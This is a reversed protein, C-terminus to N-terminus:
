VLLETDRRGGPSTADSQNPTNVHGPHQGRIPEKGRGSGPTLIFYTLCFYKITNLWCHHPFLIEYKNSKLSVAGHGM